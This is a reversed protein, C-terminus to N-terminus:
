CHVNNNNRNQENKLWPFGLTDLIEIQANSLIRRPPKGGEMLRRSHRVNSCWTGLSMYPKNSPSQSASVNCHGFKAKFARLKEIHEDFSSKRLKWQFGVADLRAIHHKRLKLLGRKGEGILKRSRRVNSCWIGLSLYPKNAASKSKNVNCHGFKAKFARLEQIREDFTSRLKWQFGVADLIEIWAKPVNPQGQKGKEMLKRTSRLNHCWRGLSVYPKNSVSPSSSVNCHGFKAKFAMLEEIHKQFTTWTNKISQNSSRSSKEQEYQIAMLVEESLDHRGPIKKNSWNINIVAEIDTKGCSATPGKRMAHSFRVQSSSSDRASDNTRTVIQNPSKHQLKLEALYSVTPSCSDENTKLAKRRREEIAADNGDGSNYLMAEENAATTTSLFLQEQCSRDRKRGGVAAIVQNQACVGEDITQQAAVKVTSGATQGKQPRNGNSLLNELPYVLETVVKELIRDFHLDACCSQFAAIQAGCTPCDRNSGEGEAKICKGCFRHGCTLNVLTDTCPQSCIPCSFDDSIISKLSSLIRVTTKKASM